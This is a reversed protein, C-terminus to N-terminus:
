KTSSGPIRDRAAERLRRMKSARDMMPVPDIVMTVGDATRLVNENHLDEVIVGENTNVFTTNLKGPIAEPLRSFGMANMRKDIERPTAGRVAKVNPQSTVPELKGGHDVFGEFRYATEPFLWNHLALRHFYELYQSHFRMVNRKYWRDDAPNHFVDQEAGGRRGQDEWRRSFDANALMKGEREAWARLAKTEIPRVANNIANYGRKQAVSFLQNAFERSQDEPIAGHGRLAVDTAAELASGRIAAIAGQPLREPIYAGRALQERLNARDAAGVAQRAEEARAQARTQVVQAGAKAQRQKPSSEDARENGVRTAPKGGLTLDRARGASDIAVAVGDGGDSSDM